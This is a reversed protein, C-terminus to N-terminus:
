AAKILTIEKINAPNYKVIVTSGAKIAELDFFSLIEKVEAVFNRGIDPIVQMQMKVQPKHNMFLGTQEITLVIAKAEIGNFTAKKRLRRGRGYRGKILQGAIFLIALLIVVIATEMLTAIFIVEM